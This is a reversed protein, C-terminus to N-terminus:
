KGVLVGLVFGTVTLGLTLGFNVDKRKVNGILPIKVFTLKENDTALKVNANILDDQEKRDGTQIREANDRYDSFRREADQLDLHKRALDLRLDVIVSDLRFKKDADEIVMRAIPLPVCYVSDQASCVAPIILILLIKMVM